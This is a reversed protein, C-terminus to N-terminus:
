MVLLDKKDQFSEKERVMVRSIGDPEVLGWSEAELEM